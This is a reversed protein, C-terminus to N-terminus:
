LSYALTLVHFEVDICFLLLLYYSQIASFITCSQILVYMYFYRELFEIFLNWTDLEKDQFYQIKSCIISPADRVMELAFTSNINLCSTYEM